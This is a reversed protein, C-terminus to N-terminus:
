SKKTTTSNLASRLDGGAGALATEAEDASMGRAILVANKVQGNCTNLAARAIGDAVDAIDGVMRAAREELKKNDAVVSVMYGDHVHGLRTMVLTSLMGLAAKQATGAGLRTSGAIVEPGSALVIEHDAAAGMPTAQNNIIAITLAGAADAAEVMGLTYPTTGSAAVAIIVDQDTFAACAADTAAAAADDEEVGIQQLRAADGGAMLFSLRDQPWSFTQTMEMGDQMALLGSSGAGTYVLRGSGAQLRAAIDDAAGVLAPIAPGVSAVAAVQGQWLARLADEGNWTDFGLYRDSAHETSGQDNLKGSPEGSSSVMHNIDEVNQM